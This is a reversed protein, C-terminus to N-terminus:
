PKVNGKRHRFKSSGRVPRQESGPRPESNSATAPASGTTRPHSRVDGESRGLGDAESVSSEAPDGVSCSVAPQEGPTPGPKATGDDLEAAPAAAQGGSQLTPGSREVWDTAFKSLVALGVDVLPGFHEALKNLREQKGQERVQRLQDESTLALIRDLVQGQKLNADRLAELHEGAHQLAREQLQLMKEANSLFLANARQDNIRQQGAETAEQSSGTITVPLASVQQRLEDYAVLRCGHRGRPLTEALDRVMTDISLELGTAGVLWTAYAAGDPAELVIRSAMTGNDVTTRQMQLWTDWKAM